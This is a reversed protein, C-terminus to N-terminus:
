AFAAPPAAAAPPRAAFDAAFDITSVFYRRLADYMERLRGLSLLWLGIRSSVEPAPWWLQDKLEKYPVRSSEKPRNLIILAM